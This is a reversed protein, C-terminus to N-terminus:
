EDVPEWGVVLASVQDAAVRQLLLLREDRGLECSYTADLRSTRSLPWAEAGVRVAPDPDLTQDIRARTVRVIALDGAGVQTVRVDVQDSPWWLLRVAEHDLTTSLRSDWRRRVHPQLWDHVGARVEEVDIVGCLLGPAARDLWGFAPLSELPVVQMLADVRVHREAFRGRDELWRAALAAGYRTTKLRLAGGDIQAEVEREALMRVAREPSWGPPLPLTTTIVAFDGRPTADWADAHYPDGRPPHTPIVLTPAACGALLMVFSLPRV